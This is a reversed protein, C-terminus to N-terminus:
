GSVYRWWGLFGADAAPLERDEVGAQYCEAFHPELERVVYMTAEDLPLGGLLDHLTNFLAPNNTM